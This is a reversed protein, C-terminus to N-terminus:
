PTSREQDSSPGEFTRKWTQASTFEPMASRYEASLRPWERLLRRHLRASRRMLARFTDRDRRHWSAGSGDANSVVASDVQALRWWNADMKAIYAQPAQAASSKPKRVAQRWATSVLWPGLKKPGPRKGVMPLPTRGLGQAAPFADPDTEIRADDFNARQARTWPLVTRLRDHLHSPGSLIDELAQLRLTAAYYQMASTHMLDIAMSDLLV